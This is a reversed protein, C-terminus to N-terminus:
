NVASASRLLPWVRCKLWDGSVADVRQGITVSHFLGRLILMCHTTNPAMGCVIIHIIHSSTVAIILKTTFKISHCSMVKIPGSIYSGWILTINCCWYKHYYWRLTNNGEGDSVSWRYKWHATLMRQISDASKSFANFTLVCSSQLFLNESIFCLM